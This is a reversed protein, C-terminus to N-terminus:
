SGRAAQLRLWLPGRSPRARHDGVDGAVAERRAGVTCRDLVLQNLQSANQHCVNHSGPKNNQMAM